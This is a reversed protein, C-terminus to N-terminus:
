SVKGTPKNVVHHGNHQYKEFYSEPVLERFYLLNNIVNFLHKVFKHASFKQDHFITVFSGAFCSAALIFENM